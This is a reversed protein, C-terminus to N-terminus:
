VTFSAIAVGVGNRFEVNTVVVQRAPKGEVRVVIKQQVHDIGLMADVPNLGVALSYLGRGDSAVSDSVDVFPGEGVRCQVNM